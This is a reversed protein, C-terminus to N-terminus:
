LYEEKLIPNYFIILYLVTNIILEKLGLDYPSFSSGLLGNLFDTIGSFAFPITILPLFMKTVISVTYQRKAKHSYMSYKDKLIPKVLLTSCCTLVSIIVNTMVLDDHLVFFRYLAYIM